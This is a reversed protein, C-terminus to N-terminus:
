QPSATSPPSTNVGYPRAASEDFAIDPLSPLNIPDIMPLAEFQSSDLDIQRAPAWGSVLQGADFYYIFAWEGSEDHGAVHPAFGMSAAFQRGETQDPSAFVEVGGITEVNEFMIPTPPIATVPNARPSEAPTIIFFASLLATLLAGIFPISGCTM